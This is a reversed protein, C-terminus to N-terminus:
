TPLPRHKVACKRQAVPTKISPFIATSTGPISSSMDPICIRDDSWEVVSSSQIAAQLLVIQISITLHYLRYLRYLRYDFMSDVSHAYCQVHNAILVAPIHHAGQGAHFPGQPIKKLKKIVKNTTNPDIDESSVYFVVQGNANVKANNIVFVHKNNGLEMVTTPTFPVAPPPNLFVAKVWDKANMENVQRNENLKKGELTNSDSWVQYMLVKSINKKSFTIKYENDSNLVKKIKV